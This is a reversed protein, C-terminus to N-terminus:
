TLREENESNFAFGRVNAGGHFVFIREVARCISEQFEMRNFEKHKIDNLPAYGDSWLLRHILEHLVVTAKDASDLFENVLISGNCCFGKFSCNPDFDFYFVDGGYKSTLELMSLLDTEGRRIGLDAAITQAIRNVESDFAVKGSKLIDSM